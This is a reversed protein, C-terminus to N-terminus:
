EIASTGPTGADGGEGLYSYCACIFEVEVDEKGMPTGKTEDYGPLEEFTMM